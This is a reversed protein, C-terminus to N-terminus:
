TTTACGASSGPVSSIAARAPSRSPSASSQRIGQHPASERKSQGASRLPAGLDRLRKRRRRLLICIRCTHGPHGGIKNRFHANQSYLCPPKTTRLDYRISYTTRLNQLIQMTPHLGGRIRHNPKPQSRPPPQQKGANVPDGAATGAAKTPDRRRLPHAKPM